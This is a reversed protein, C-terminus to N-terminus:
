LEVTDTKNGNCIDIADDGWVEHWKNEVDWVPDYNFQEMNVSETDGKDTKKPDTKSAKM